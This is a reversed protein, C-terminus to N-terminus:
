EERRKCAIISSTLGEYNISIPVITWFCPVGYKSDIQWNLSPPYFFHIADIKDAIKYWKRDETSQGLLLINDYGNNECFGHHTGNPITLFAYFEGVRKVEANEILEKLAKKMKEGKM